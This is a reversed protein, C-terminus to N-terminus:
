KYSPMQSRILILTERIIGLYSAIMHQPVRQKADTFKNILKSYKIASTESMNGMLSRQTAVLNNHVPIRFYRELTYKKGAAPGM